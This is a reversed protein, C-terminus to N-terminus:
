LDESKGSREWADYSSQIWKDFFTSVHDAFTPSNVRAVPELMYRVDQITAQVVNLTTAIM